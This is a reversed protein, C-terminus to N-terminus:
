LDNESVKYGCSSCEWYGEGYEFDGNEDHGYFAMTGGCDPCIPHDTDVQWGNHMDYNLQAKFIEHKDGSESYPEIDDSNLCNPCYCNEVEDFITGCEICKMM